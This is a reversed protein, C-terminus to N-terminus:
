YKYRDLVDTQGKESVLIYAGNIHIHLEFFFYCHRFFLQM